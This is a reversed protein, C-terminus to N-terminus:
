EIYGLQSSHPCNTSSTIGLRPRKDQATVGAQTTVAILQDARTPILSTNLHRSDVMVAGGCM